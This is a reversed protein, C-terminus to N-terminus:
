TKGQLQLWCYWSLDFSPKKGSTVSWKWKMEGQKIQNISWALPFLKPPQENTKTKTKQASKKKRLCLCLHTYRTACSALLYFWIFCILVSYMGSDQPSFLMLTELALWVSPIIFVWLSPSHTVVQHYTALIFVMHHAEKQDPNPAGHHEHGSRVRACM